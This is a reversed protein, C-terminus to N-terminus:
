KLVRKAAFSGSIKEAGNVSFSAGTEEAHPGHFRGQFFGTGAGNLQAQGQYLGGDIAKNMSGNLLSINRADFNVNGRVNGTHFNVMLNSTGNSLLRLEEGSKVVGIALGSYNIERDRQALSQLDQVSTLHSGVIFTGAPPLESRGATNKAKWLGWSLYNFGEIKNDFYVEVSAANACYYNFFSSPAELEGKASIIFKDKSILADDAAAVNLIQPEENYISRLFWTNFFGESLKVPDSAFNFFLYSISSKLPNAAAEAAVPVANSLYMQVDGSSQAAIDTLSSASGYLYGKYDQRFFMPAIVPVAAALGLAYDILAPQSAQPNHSASDLDQRVYVDALGFSDKKDEMSCAEPYFFKVNLLEKEESAQDALLKQMNKIDATKKETDLKQELFNSRIDLFDKAKPIHNGLTYFDLNPYDFFEAELEAELDEYLDAYDMTLEEDFVIFKEAFLNKTFLVSLVLFTLALMKKM